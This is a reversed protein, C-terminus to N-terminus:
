THIKASRSQPSAVDSDPHVGISTGALDLFQQKTGHISADHFQDLRAIEHDRSIDRQSSFPSAHGGLGLGSFSAASFPLQPVTM